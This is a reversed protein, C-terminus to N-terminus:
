SRSAATSSRPRTPAKVTVGGGQASISSRLGVRGGLPTDAPRRPSIAPLRAPPTSPTRTSRASVDGSRTRADTAGPPPSRTPGRRHVLLHEHAARAAAHRQHRQIDRGTRNVSLIAWGDADEPTDDPNLLEDIAAALSEAEDRGIDTILLARPENTAPCQEVVATVSWMSRDYHDRDDREDGLTYSDAGSRCQILIGPLAPEGGQPVALTQVYIRKLPPVPATPASLGPGRRGATPAWSRCGIRSTYKRVPDM